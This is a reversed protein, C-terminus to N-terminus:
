WLSPKWVMLAFIAIVASFAPWGLAFWLRYLRHYDPPLRAGTRAAEAALRRLRVQIWVVPLWFLGTLLYLGLSAAIWSELLSYGALHALAAGTLPQVLVASATFLTDAVIVVGATHAILAPEGTRHAMMMFFAIGLGTGFLITAGLVHALKLLLFPDSM